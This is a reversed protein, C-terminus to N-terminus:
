DQNRPVNYLSEKKTEPPIISVRGEIYGTVLERVLESASLDLRAAVEEFRTKVQSSVRAHLMETKPQSMKPFETEISSM